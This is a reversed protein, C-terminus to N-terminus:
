LEGTLTIRHTDGLEASPSFAYAIHLLRVDFGVGIATGAWSDESNTSRYNAGFSNWGLRMYFPKFEDYEGGIAIVPDNDVPIIIDSALVIPLGRPRYSIGTRFTLPLRNKESGLASLQKGLNQVMLGGTLRRRNGTYKIGLDLAIGSASFEHLKEYIFKGTVGLSFNYNFRRTFTAAMLLDGGGFTGKTTGLSDTEIFEGYNLYDVHIAYYNDEGLRFIYGMFGSQIDVFYNHYGLVFRNEEFTSIGAPNYYLASEDDALGTFAGGMGVARAGVNIKLFPFASTGANSHIDKASTPGIALVMMLIATLVFFTGLRQRM